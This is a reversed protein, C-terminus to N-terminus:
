AHSRTEGQGAVNTVCRGCLAPHAEHAGVDERHHWCRACKRYGSPAVQVYLGPVDTPKVGAPRSAAPHLRAYSSIFVFRLEDGLRALRKHLEPECYIDVEADLSSGIGGAVRLKELEKSVATRVAMAEEWFRLDAEGGAPLTPWGRYWTALFVSESNKGPLYSWTEEATFSLIPTMWRTLAHLIHFMATQASRRARSTRPTTYMRDKLIDLYFSSLQEVCYQHLKQYVLHFSFSDYAAIIEDQLRQAEMVAWRDLALMEEAPLAQDPEFGDLNALLYRVTNRIKRYADAMRTLIEDSISMEARYDTAAVWLRLIDAGLTKIVQQPAVVNGRSKSMKQGKADVTFGHTLV